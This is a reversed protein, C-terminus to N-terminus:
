FDQLNCHMQLRATTQQDLDKTHGRQLLIVTFNQKNM